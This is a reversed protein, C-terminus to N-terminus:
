INFYRLALKAGLFSTGGSVVVYLILDSISLIFSGTQHFVPINFAFWILLGGSAGSILAIVKMRQLDPRTSEVLRYGILLGNFGIIWPMVGLMMELSVIKTLFIAVIISGGFGILTSKLISGLLRSKPNRWLDDSFM